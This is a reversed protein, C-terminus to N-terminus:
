QKARGLSLLDIDADQYNRELWFSNKSKISILLM